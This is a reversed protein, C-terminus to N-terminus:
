HAHPGRDPHSHVYGGHSHLRESRGSRGRSARRAARGSRRPSDADRRAASRGATEACDRCVGVIAFHTFKTAYGFERRIQERIPALREPAVPTVRACRECYLYELEHERALLYLGPSHGLHLHRVLGRQELLELNRYVSSEELSLTRALHRPTSLRLGSERLWLIAEEIQDFVRAPTDPAATM